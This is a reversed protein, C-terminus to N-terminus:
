SALPQPRRLRPPLLKEIQSVFIEPEIPKHLCNSFGSTKIKEHERPTPPRTLAVVPVRRWRPNRDLRAMLDFGSLVPMDLDCVILDVAGELAAGVGDEADSTYITTYGTSRLLYDALQGSDRDTEIILITAAM